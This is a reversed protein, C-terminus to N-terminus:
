DEANDTKTEQTKMGRLLDLFLNVDQESRKWREYRLQSLGDQLARLEDIVSNIADFSAMPLRTTENGLRKILETLGCFNEPFPPWSSAAIDKGFQEIDSMM